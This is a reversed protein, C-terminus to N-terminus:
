CDAKDELEDVSPQDLPLAMCHILYRLSGWCLALEEAAGHQALRGESM